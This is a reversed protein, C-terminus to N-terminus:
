AQNIDSVYSTAKVITDHKSRKITHQKQVYQKTTLITECGDCVRKPINSDDLM